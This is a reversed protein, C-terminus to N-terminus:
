NIGYINKCILPLVVYKSLAVTTTIGVATNIYVDGGFYNPMATPKVTAVVNSKQM